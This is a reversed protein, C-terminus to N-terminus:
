EENISPLIGRRTRDGVRAQQDMNQLCNQPNRTRNRRFHPHDRKKLEATLSTANPSSKRSIVLSSSTVQQLIRATLRTRYGSYREQTFVNLRDGEIPRFHMTWASPSVKSYNEEPIYLLETLCIQYSLIAFSHRIIHAAKQFMLLATSEMASWFLSILCKKTDIKQSVREPVEDRSSAWISDRPYYLFFCSEEGTITSQFGPTRVSQFALLIVHSLTVREATQNADLAHPVWLFHFSKIGLPHHLIRLCTGEAIRFHRYLIRYSLDPREKLM